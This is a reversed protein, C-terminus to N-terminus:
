DSYVASIVQIEKKYVFDLSILQITRLAHHHLFTSSFYESVPQLIDQRDYQEITLNFDALSGSSTLDPRVSM